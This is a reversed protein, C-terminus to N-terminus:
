PTNTRAPSPTPDPHYLPSYPPPSAPRPPTLTRVHCLSPTMICGPTMINVNLPRIPSSSARMNNPNQPTDRAFSVSRSHHLTPRVAHRSNSCTRHPPSRHHRPEPVTWPRAPNYNELRSCLRRFTHDTINPHM